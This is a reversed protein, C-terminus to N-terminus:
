ADRNISPLGKKSINGPRCRTGEKFYLTQLIALHDTHHQTGTQETAETTDLEAVEHVM